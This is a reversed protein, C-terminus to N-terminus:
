IYIIIGAVGAIVLVLVPHIRRVRLVAFAAVVIVIGWIDTIGKDAVSYAAAAILAVVAPRLSTVIRAA